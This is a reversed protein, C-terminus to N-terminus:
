IRSNAHLSHWCAGRFCLGHALRCPTMVLVVSIKMLAVTFVESRV